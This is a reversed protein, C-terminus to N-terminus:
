GQFMVCSLHADFDALTDEEFDEATRLSSTEEVAPCDPANPDTLPIGRPRGVIMKEVPGVKELNRTYHVGDPSPVLPKRLIASAYAACVAPAGSKVAIHEVAESVEAYNGPRKHFNEIMFRVAQKGEGTGDSGAFGLKTGFPTSKAMYFAVFGEDSYALEWHDYEDLMEGVGKAKLGLKKYTLSYMNWIKDLDEKTLSKSDVERWATSATKLLPLLHPRLSPNQYALRIVKNRLSM